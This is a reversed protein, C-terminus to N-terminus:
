FVEINTALAPDIRFGAEETPKLVVAASGGDLTYGAPPNLTVTFTATLPLENKVRTSLGAVPAYLTDTVNATPKYTVNHTQTGAAPQVLPAAAATLPTDVTAANAAQRMMITLETRLNALDDTTAYTAAAAPSAAAGNTPQGVKVVVLSTAAAQWAALTAGDPVADVDVAVGDVYLDWGQAILALLADLGIPAALLIPSASPM